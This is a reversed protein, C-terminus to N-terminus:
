NLPFPAKQRPLLFVSTVWPNRIHAQPQPPVATRRSSRFAQPTEPGRLDSSPSRNTHLRLGPCPVTPVPRGILLPPNDMSFLSFSFASLLTIQVPRQPFLLQVGDGEAMHDAGAHKRQDSDADPVRALRRPDPNQEGGDENQELGQGEDHHRTGGAEAAAIVGHHAGQPTGLEGAEVDDDEKGGVDGRAMYAMLKAWYRWPTSGCTGMTGTATAQRVTNKM